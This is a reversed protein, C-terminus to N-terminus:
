VAEKEKTLFNSFLPPDVRPIDQVVWQMSKVTRKGNKSEIEAFGVISKEKTEIHVSLIDKSKSHGHISGKFNMTQEYEEMTGTWMSSESFIMIAEANMFSCTIKLVEVYDEKSLGNIPAVIKSDGTIVIAFPGTFTSKKKITEAIENFQKFFVANVNKGLGIETIEKYQGNKM